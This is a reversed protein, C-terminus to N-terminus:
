IRLQPEKYENGLEDFYNLSVFSDDSKSLKGYMLNEGILSSGGKRNQGKINIGM